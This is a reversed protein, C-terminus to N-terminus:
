TLSHRSIWSSQRQPRPREIKGDNVLAIVEAKKANIADLLKKKNM